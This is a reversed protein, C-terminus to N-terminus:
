KSDLNLRYEFQNSISPWNQQQVSSRVCNQLEPTLVGTNAPDTAQVEAAKGNQLKWKLSIELHYKLYKSLHDNFCKQLGPKVSNEVVASVAPDLEQPSRLSLVLNHISSSVMAASKTATFMKSKRAGGSGMAALGSSKAAFSDAPAFAAASDSAAGAAGAAVVANAQPRFAEAQPTEAQREALSDTKAEAPIEPPPVKKMPAPADAKEAAIEVAAVDDSIKQSRAAPIDLHSRQFLMLALAATALGGGLSWWAWKPKAQPFLAARQEASLRHSEQSSYNKLMETSKRILLVEAQLESDTKLAAEILAKDAPTLENLVYATLRPDNKDIKM